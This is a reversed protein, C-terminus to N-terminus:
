RRSRDGRAVGGCPAPSPVGVVRREPDRAGAAPVTIPGACAPLLLVGAGDAPHLPRSAQRTHVRAPDRRAVPRWPGRPLRPADPPQFLLTNPRPESLVQQSVLRQVLRDPEPGAREGVWGDLTARAVTLTRQEVLREAMDALVAMAPPGLLPDGAVTEHLYREYLHYASAVDGPGSASGRAVKEFIRLHQPVRLLARLEETLEGTGVGWRSLLPAVQSDFDLPEIAVTEGWTRGRLLPDYHLDFDRCAVVVTVGDITRLRDILGLFLRLSGHSRHLSLVDLSDIIVIVRRHVALRACRGVIDSPLGLRQLDDESSAEAFLDAKIFLVTAGQESEIRDALDLLVCTKGGGPRDTVLIDRRGEKIARRVVDVEPRQFREGDVTRIWERGIASAARFTTITEAESYPPAPYLGRAELASVVDEKCLLFPADRLKAQHSGLLRELADRAALPNPVIRALDALNQRDWEDLTHAPGFFIRAGLRLAAADDRGVIRAFRALIEKAAGSAGLVFAGYDPFSRAAEALRHLDGFPTQSYFYVQVQPDGELQDRAKLIEGQLTSDGLSWTAYESQSKKAQVHIRRGDTFLVVVDDVHIYSDEGPLGTSEGQVAKIAPEVLLRIIWYLAVRLQYEDGQSSRTGAISM